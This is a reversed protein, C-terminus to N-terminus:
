LGRGGVSRRRRGAAAASAGRSEVDALVVWAASRVLRRRAWRRARPAGCARGACGGWGITRRADGALAGAVVTRVAPARHWLRLRARARCRAREGGGTGVVAGAPARM